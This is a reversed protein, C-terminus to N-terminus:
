MMHVLDLRLIRVEKFYLKPSFKSKAYALYKNQLISCYGLLKIKQLISIVQFVTFLPPHSM